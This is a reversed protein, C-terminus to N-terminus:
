TKLTVHITSLEILLISVQCYIKKNQLYMGFANAAIKKLM